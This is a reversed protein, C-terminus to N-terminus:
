KMKKNISVLLMIVEYGIRIAVNYVVIYNLFLMFSFSIYSFSMITFYVTLFIYTMKVLPEIVKADFNLFDKIWNVAKSDYKKNPKLFLFYALVAAMFGVVLAVILWTEYNRDVSSMLSSLSSLDDFSSM